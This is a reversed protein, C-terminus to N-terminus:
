ESDQHKMMRKFLNNMNLHSISPITIPPFYFSPTKIKKIKIRLGKTEWTGLGRRMKFTSSGFHVFYFCFRIGNTKM